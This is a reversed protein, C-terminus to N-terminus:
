YAPNERLINITVNQNASAQPTIPVRPGRIRSVKVCGPYEESPLGYIDHGGCCKEEFFTPLKQDSHSGAVKEKWYCVSIRIPQFM